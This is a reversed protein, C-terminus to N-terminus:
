LWCVPSTHIRLYKKPEGMGQHFQSTIEPITKRRAGKEPRPTIEHSRYVTEATIKGWSLM